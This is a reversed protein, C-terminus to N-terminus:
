PREWFFSGQDPLMALQLRACYWPGHPARVKRFFCLEVAVECLGRLALPETFLKTVGGAAAQLVQNLLEFLLFPFVALLELGPADAVPAVADLSVVLGPIGPQASCVIVQDRDDVVLALLRKRPLVRGLGDFLVPRLSPAAGLGDALDGQSLLLVDVAADLMGIVSALLLLFLPLAFLLSSTRLPWRHGCEQLHGLLCGTPAFWHCALAILCSGSAAKSAEQVRVSRQSFAPLTTDHTMMEREDREECEDHRM